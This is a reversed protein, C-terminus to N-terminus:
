AVELSVARAKYFQAIEKTIAKSRIMCSLLVKLSDSASDTAVPAYVKVQKRASEVMGATLRIYNEVKNADITGAHNRFEVSGMRFFSQLNLKFYRDNSYLRSLDLISTCVDIKAFLSAVPAILNSKIFRNNSDRRSVPQISDMAKEYKTFLKFLNKFQGIKWDTANHHVHFGCSKNVQANLEQLVICAIRAQYIGNEGELVPSVVEFGDVGQISADTKIQWVDYDRGTYGATMVNLGATKFASVVISRSVGFCELEIGFKSNIM